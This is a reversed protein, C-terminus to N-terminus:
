LQVVGEMIMMHIALKDVPLVCLMGCWFHIQIASVSQQM